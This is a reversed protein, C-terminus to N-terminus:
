VGDPVSRLFAYTLRAPAGDRANAYPRWDATEERGNRLAEVFYASM